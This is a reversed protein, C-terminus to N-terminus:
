RRRPRPALPGGRGRQLGGLLPGERPAWQISNGRDALELLAPDARGCHVEPTALGAWLWPARKPM